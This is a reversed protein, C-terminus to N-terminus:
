RWEDSKEGVVGQVFSQVLPVAFREPYLVYPLWGFPGPQTLAPSDRLRGYYYMDGVRLAAEPNTQVAAKWLRLSALACQQPNLSLCKGQQLLFAANVQSNEHGMEAAALITECPEKGIATVINNTREDQTIRCTRIPM